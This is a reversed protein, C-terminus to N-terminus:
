SIVGGTTTLTGASMTTLQSLIGATSVGVAVSLQSALGLM